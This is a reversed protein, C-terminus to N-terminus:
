AVVMFRNGGKINTAKRAPPHRLPITMVLAYHCGTLAKFCLSTMHHHSVPSRRVGNWLSSFTVCIKSKAVAKRRRAHKVTAAKKFWFDV